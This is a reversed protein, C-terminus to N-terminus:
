TQCIGEKPYLLTGQQYLFVTVMAVVSNHLLQVLHFYNLKMRPVFTRQPLIMSLYSQQWPLVTVMAVLLSHMLQATHSYRLDMNPM